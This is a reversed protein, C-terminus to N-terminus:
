FSECSEIVFGIKNKPRQENESVNICISLRIPLSCQSILTSKMFLLENNFELIKFAKSVQHRNKYFYFFFLESTLFIIIYSLTPEFYRKVILYRLNYMFVSAAFKEDVSSSSVYFFNLSNEVWKRKEPKLM